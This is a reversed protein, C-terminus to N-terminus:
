KKAGKVTITITDGKHLEMIKILLDEWVSPIKCGQLGTHFKQHYAISFGHEGDKKCKFVVRKTKM